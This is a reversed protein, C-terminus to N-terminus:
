DLWISSAMRGTEGDRRYSFFLESQQYTCYDGGYIASVGLAHLRQRALQYLDARYKVQREQGPSLQGPSLQSQSLQTQETQDQLLFATAAKADHKIFAARVEPGVEFAAQSIAPGLWVLLQQTQPFRAVTQEIIGGCLGRWGAHIAAVQLGNSDCILLPLCDATMVTCVQQKASTICADAIIPETSNATSKVTLEAVAIGHVQQLWLTPTPMKALQHYCIRNQMVAKDDDNVHLGLNLSDYVGKSVGGFRSSSVAHVNAPAPWDPYILM